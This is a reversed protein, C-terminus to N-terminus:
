LVTYYITGVPMIASGGLGAYAFVLNDGSPVRLGPFNLSVTQNVFGSGPGMLPIQIFYRKYAAGTGQTIATQVSVSGAATIALGAGGSCAWVLIDATLVGGGGIIGTVANGPDEVFPQHGDVSFLAGATNVNATLMSLARTVESTGTDVTGLHM